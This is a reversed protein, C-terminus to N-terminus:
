SNIDHSLLINKSNIQSGASEDYVEYAHSHKKIVEELMVQKTLAFKFLTNINVGKPSYLLSPYKKHQIVWAIAILIIWGGFQMSIWFSFNHYTVAYYISSLMLSWALCLLSIRTWLNCRHYNYPKYFITYAIFVLTVVFYVLGELSQNYHKLTKNLAVSFIQFISKSILFQPSLYINANSNISQWIPRWMISLPLYILLTLSSLIAFFIHEDKYCFVSCDHNM